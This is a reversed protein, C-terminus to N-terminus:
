FANVVDRLTAERMSPELTKRNVVDASGELLDAIDLKIRAYRFLGVPREPDLDVLVDIDSGPRAEGRATSGFVAAHLVGKQRLEVQHSRLQSLVQDLALAM